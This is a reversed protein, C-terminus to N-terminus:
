KVALNYVVAFINVITMILNVAFWKTKKEPQFKDAYFIMAASLAVILASLLLYVVTSLRNGSGSFSIQTVMKAPLFFYSVTNLIITSATCAIATISFKDFKM